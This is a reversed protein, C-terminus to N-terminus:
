TAASTLQHSEVSVKWLSAGVTDKRNWIRRIVEEIRARAEEIPLKESCREGTISEVLAETETVDQANPFPIPLRKLYNASNNATPNIERLLESALRTNLFALIYTLLREDHPFVGVIGQDFLRHNLLAATLTSSAVM